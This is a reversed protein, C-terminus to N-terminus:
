SFPARASEIRAKFAPFATTGGLMPAAVSAHGGVNVARWVDLVVM